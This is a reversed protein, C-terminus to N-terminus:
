EDVKRFVYQFYTEKFETSYSRSLPINNGSRMTIANSTYSDVRFLNIIYSRHCKIFNKQALLKEEFYYLPDTGWLTSGDTRIIQMQKLNAEVSEIEQLRIRHITSNNRIIICEANKQIDHYMSSISASILEYRNEM